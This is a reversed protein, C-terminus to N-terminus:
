AVLKEVESSGDLYSKGNSGPSWQELLRASLKKLALMNNSINIGDLFIYISETPMMSTKLYLQM